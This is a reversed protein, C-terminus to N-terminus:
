VTKTIPTADNPSRAVSNKSFSPANKPEIYTTPDGFGGCLINELETLNERKIVYSRHKGQREAGIRQLTRSLEARSIKDPGFSMEEWIAGFRFVISGDQLQCPRGRPDAEQGEDLARAKLLKDRLREAIVLDRRQELPAAEHTATLVLKEYPGGKRDWAKGFWKPLPYEAQRLAQVRIASFSTLQEATLEIYGGKARSFRDSYLRYLPPDSQYVVLRLEGLPTALGNTHGDGASKSQPVQAEPLQPLVQSAEEATRRNQEKKLLELFLARYAAEDMSAPRSHKISEYLILVAGASDLEITNRLVGGIMRDVDLPAIAAKPAAAAATAAWSPSWGNQKAWYVLSGISIPGPSKFFKWPKECCGPRWKEPCSQSWQDWVDLMACSADVSHLAM